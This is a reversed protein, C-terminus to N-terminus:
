NKKEGANEPAESKHIRVLEDRERVWADYIALQKFNPTRCLGQSNGEYYQTFANIKKNLDYIYQDM